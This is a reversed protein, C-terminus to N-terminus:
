MDPAMATVEIEVRAEDEVLAVVQVVSMAPYHNGIIERYAVGIEKGAAAYEKKDVVFWTMRVVHEPKVNAASLVEVVNKLAQRTQGAFDASVFKGQADWGVMGSVFVSRGRAAVGNAYGKPRPWHAPQLIEM